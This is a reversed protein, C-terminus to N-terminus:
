IMVMKVQIIATSVKDDIASTRLGPQVNSNGPSSKKKINFDPGWELGILDSDRPSPGSYCYPIFDEWLIRVLVLM